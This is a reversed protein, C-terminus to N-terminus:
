WTHGRERLTKGHAAIVEYTCAVTVRLGTGRLIWYGAEVRVGKVGRQSSAGQRTRGQRTRDNGQGARYTGSPLPLSMAIGEGDGDFGRSGVPRATILGSITARSLRGLVVGAKGLREGVDVM